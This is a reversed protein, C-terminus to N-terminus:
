TNERLGKENSLFLILGLLIWLHRADEFSGVLGQYIFSSLFALFLGTGLTQWETKGVSFARGSIFVYALIFIFSILGLLGTQAAINLFIQHADTLYQTRGSADAYNVGAPNTGLGKGFLPNESFTRFASEWTLVRVSPQIVKETFPIKVQYPASATNVPSILSAGLFFIGSLIGAALFSNAVYKQGKERCVLYQWIGAALLVGGLGPTLTFFLTISFLLLVPLFIRRSIWGIQFGSILLFLSVTFYNCLMSPYLFTAQIRPYNGPVLTGYHHMSFGSLPNNPFLYFLAVTLTAIISVIVSAALWVLLVKRFVSLSKVIDFTIVALAGLYIVGLLKSWSPQQSLCVSTFATLIYIFILLFFKNFRFGRNSKFILLVRFIILFSFIFDSIQVNQGLFMFGPQMFGLSFVYTLFLFLVIQDLLNPRM